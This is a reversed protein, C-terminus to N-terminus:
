HEISPHGQLQSVLLELGAAESTMVVSAHCVIMGNFLLRFHLAKIRYKSM